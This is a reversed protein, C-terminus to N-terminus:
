IEISTLGERLAYKTLEAVSSANLKKFIHRRHTEITSISLNLRSAIDKTKVGEAIMQLVEKERDTLLCPELSDNIKINLIYDEVVLDRIEKSLYIHDNLVSSIATLLEEFVCDKILYGSAGARLMGVVFRRHSHISLAIIKTKPNKKLIQHTAEIGNLDPMSVDMVIIEPILDLAMKIAQRGNAAQGLVIMSTQNEILTALGQRIIAHDDVLLISENM